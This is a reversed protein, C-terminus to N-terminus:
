GITPLKASLTITQSRPVDKLASWRCSQHGAGGPRGEDLSLRNQIQGRRIDLKRDFSRRRAAARNGLDGGAALSDDIIYEACSVSEPALM